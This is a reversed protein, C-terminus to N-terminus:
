RCRYLEFAGQRTGDRSFIASGDRRFLYVSRGEIEEYRGASARRYDRRGRRTRVTLGGRYAEILRERVRGRDDQFCWRGSPDFRGGAAGDPPIVVIGGDPDPVIVTGDRAVCGAVLAAGFLTLAARRTAIEM